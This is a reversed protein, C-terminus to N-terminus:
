SVFFAYCPSSRESSLSSRNIVLSISVYVYISTNNKKTKSVHNCPERGNRLKRIIIPRPRCEPWARATKCLVRLLQTASAASRNNNHLVQGVFLKQLAVRSVRPREECLLSLTEVAEM